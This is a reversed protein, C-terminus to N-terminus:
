ITYARRTSKQEKEFWAGDVFEPVYIPGAIFYSRVM